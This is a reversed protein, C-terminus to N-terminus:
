SPAIELVLLLHKSDSPDPNLDQRLQTDPSERGQRCDTEESIFHYYNCMIQLYIALGEEQYMIFSYIGVTYHTIYILM